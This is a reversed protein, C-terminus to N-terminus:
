KMPYKRNMEEYEKAQTNLETLARRTDLQLVEYEKTVDGKTLARIQANIADQLMEYKSQESKIMNSDASVMPKFLHRYCRAFYSKLSVFWYFVNIRQMPTLTIKHRSQYLFVGMDDLMEENKTELYGQYLNDCILYKEFPVGDFDAAVAKFKGIKELRVPSFSIEEIWDLASTAQAVQQALLYFELKGLECIFGSAFRHKIKLGSWRILCYAKIEPYSYGQALLSYVYKLQKQSLREWCSPVKLDVNM